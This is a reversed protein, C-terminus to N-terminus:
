LDQEVMVGEVGPASLHDEFQDMLYKRKALIFEKTGVFIACQEPDPNDRCLTLLHLCFVPQNRHNYNLTTAQMSTCSKKEPHKAFHNRMEAETDVLWKTIPEVLEAELLQVTAKDYSKEFFWESLVLNM